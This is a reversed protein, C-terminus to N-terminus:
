LNALELTWFQAIILTDFRFRSTFMFFFFNIVIRNVIDSDAMDRAPQVEPESGDSDDGGDVAAEGSVAVDSVADGSDSASVGSSFGSLLWDANFEM